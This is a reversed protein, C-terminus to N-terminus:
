AGRTNKSEFLASASGRRAHVCAYAYNLAGDDSGFSGFRAKRDGASGSPRRPRHVVWPRYYPSTSQTHSMGRRSSVAKRSHTLRAVVMSLSWADETCLQELHGDEQRLEVLGGLLSRPASGSARRVMDLFNPQELLRDTSLGAAHWAAYCLASM